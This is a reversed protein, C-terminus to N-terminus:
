NRTVLRFQDMVRYTAKTIDSQGDPSLLDFEGATYGQWITNGRKNDIVYIVLLGNKELFKVRNYTEDKERQKELEEETLEFDVARKSLWYDFNPQDYGRYRVSDKFLKYNILLDPKESDRRFGQSGLRSTITREIATYYAASDEPIANLVFNFTKYRKFNGSYNFDYEAVFDKQSACGCIVLLVILIVYTQKM